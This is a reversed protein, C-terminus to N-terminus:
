FYEIRVGIVFVKVEMLVGEECLMEYIDRLSYGIVFVLVECDSKKGNVIISKLKDNEFEIKELKFNFYVEGGFSKIEERINKVVGKLFDIGVYVKSEYKIEELM